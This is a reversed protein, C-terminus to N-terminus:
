WLADRGPATVTAGKKKALDYIFDLNNFPVFAGYGDM